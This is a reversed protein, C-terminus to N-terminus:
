VEKRVREYTAKSVGLSKRRQAHGNGHKGAIVESAMQTVTKTTNSSSIRKNVEAQVKSYTARDVGLSKRRASHGNGHKGDIVESAMTSISKSPKKPKSKVGARRNVEARVKEYKANSIGLSKRRNAHGSGHKGAIVESAMQAVTKTKAPTPKKSPKSAPKSPKSESSIGFYEAVSRAHVEAMDEIYENQKSGFILDFDKNGTMFGNEVLVAPMKTERNIHLNTWSGRVGAHLGNGHTSYGAKKINSVIIEALRKSKESTGWYFVCRGNFSADGSANAHISFVLDVNKENYYNTRQRLPVD